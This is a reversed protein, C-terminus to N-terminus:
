KIDTIFNFTPIEKIQKIIEEKKILIETKIIPKTKIFIINKNISINDINIPINKKNLIEVILKKKIKETNTVNKFKELLQSIQLM